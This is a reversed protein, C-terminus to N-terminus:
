VFLLNFTDFDLARACFYQTEQHVIHKVKTLHPWAFKPFINLIEINLFSYLIDDINLRHLSLETTNIESVHSLIEISIIM